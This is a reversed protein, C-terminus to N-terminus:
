APILGFGNCRPCEESPKNPNRTFPEYGITKNVLKGTKGNLEKVTKKTVPDVENIARHLGHCKPCPRQTEFDLKEPMVTFKLGDETPVGIELQGEAVPPTEGAPPGTYVAVYTDTTPDYEVHGHDTTYGRRAPANLGEPPRESVVRNAAQMPSAPVPPTYPPRPVSRQTMRYQFIDKDPDPHSRMEIDYTSAALDKRLERLRRQGESGGVRENALETGDVWQNLRTRLYLEVQQKRTHESLNAM